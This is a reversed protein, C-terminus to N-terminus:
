RMAALPLIISVACLGEAAKEVKLSGGSERSLISTIYKDFDLGAEPILDKLIIPQNDEDPMGRDPYRLAVELFGDKNAEATIIELVGRKKMQLVATCLLGALVIRWKRLDGRFHLDGSTFYKVVEVMAFDPQTLLSQILTDLLSNMELIEEYSRGQEFLDMFSLIMRQTQIAENEITKLDQPLANIEQARDLLLQTYGLIGTLSNNLKHLFGRSMQALLLLKRIELLCSIIDNNREYQEMIPMSGMDGPYLAPRIWLDTQINVTEWINTLLYFYSFGKISLLKYNNRPTCQKPIGDGIEEGM